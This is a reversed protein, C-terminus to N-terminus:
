EGLVKKKLDESLTFGYEELTEANLESGFMAKFLKAVDSRTFDIQMRFNGTKHLEQGM